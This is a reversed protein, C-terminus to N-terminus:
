HTSARKGTLVVAAIVVTLVIVSPAAEEEPLEEGRDELSKGTYEVSAVPPHLKTDLCFAVVGDLTNGDPDTIIATGGYTLLM